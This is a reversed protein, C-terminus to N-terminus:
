LTSKIQEALRDNWMAATVSQVITAGANLYDQFDEPTAVGGVGIIEFDLGLKKRIAVMRTVMELGAWKIGAGCVGSKLRGEGPLLQKGQEDVVAAPITNILSFASIYESTEAVIKELLDQQEPTYYGVKAIVPIDGIAAKVKKSVSLVAEPSYCLIGENAVNPCSLNMEIVTVGNQVATKAAKAFDDFYEDQTFGDQITGVVSAVMLQGKGVYSLAKKMDEAWFEPGRSPNGFSNTITLKELPKDTDTHGVQPEAAKEVTLDGEIDLYVVNPFENASFPVSRQTKYTVVDFGRELAYKIHKSTPLSGAAIGFPSYLEHGLFKFKPEGTNKYTELDPKSPYPGHDFNDDFTKDPDYITAPISPM